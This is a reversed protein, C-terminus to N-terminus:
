SVQKKNNLSQKLKDNYKYLGLTIANEIGFLM